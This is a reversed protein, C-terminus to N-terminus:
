TSPKWDTETAAAEWLREIWSEEDAVGGILLAILSFIEDHHLQNKLVWGGAGIRLVPHEVFEAISRFDLGAPGFRL